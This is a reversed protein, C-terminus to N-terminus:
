IAEDHWPRFNLRFNHLGCRTEIVKDRFDNKWNRIKDKVIRYRKVGGFADIAWIKPTAGPSRGMPSSESSMGALGLWEETLIKVM